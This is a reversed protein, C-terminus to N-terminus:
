KRQGHIIQYVRKRSIGFANALDITNEGQAFRSRIAQNREERRPAKYNRPKSQLSDRYLWSILTDVATSISSRAVHDYGRPPM